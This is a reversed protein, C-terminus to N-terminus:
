GPQGPIQSGPESDGPQAKGSGPNVQVSLWGNRKLYGQVAQDLEQFPPTPTPLRGAARERAVELDFARWARERRQRRNWYHVVVLAIVFGFVFQVFSLGVPM